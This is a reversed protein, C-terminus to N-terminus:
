SKLAYAPLQARVNWPLPDPRTQLRRPFHPVAHASYERKKADVDKALRSDRYPM